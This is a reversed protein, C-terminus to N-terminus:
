RLTDAPVDDGDSYLWPTAASVVSVLLVVTAFTAGRM